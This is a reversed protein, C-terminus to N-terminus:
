IEGRQRYSRRSSAYIEDGFKRAVGYGGLVSGALWAYQEGSLKGTFLGVTGALTFIMAIIFRRSTYKNEEM